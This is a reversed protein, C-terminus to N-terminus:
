VLEEVFYGYVEEGKSERERARYQWFFRNEGWVRYLEVCYLFFFFRLACAYGGRGGGRRVERYCVRGIRGPGQGSPEQKAKSSTRSRTGHGRQM